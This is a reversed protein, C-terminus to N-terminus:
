QDEGDNEHSVNFKLHLHDWMSDQNAPCKALTTFKCVEFHYVPHIEWISVRKPNTKTDNPGKCPTHSADFFLPGTVRVPRDTIQRLVNADWIKPRYHPSMEATVSVCAVESPNRILDIHIDNGEETEGHCNVSEGKGKGVNSFRPNSMFAVHRVLNGEGITRNGVKLFNKLVSRDEPLLEKPGQRGHPINRKEAEKQLDVFMQYTMTFPVGSVCFNNKALNQARHAQEIAPTDGEGPCTKDVPHVEHVEDNPLTCAPMFVVGDPKKAHDALAPSNGLTVLTFAAALLGLPRLGIMPVELTHTALCYAVLLQLELEFLTSVEQM